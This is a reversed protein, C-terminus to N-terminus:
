DAARVLLKEPAAWRAPVRAALTTACCRDAPHQARGADARPRRDRVHRTRHRGAPARAGAGRDARATPRLLDAARAGASAPARRGSPFESGCRRSAMPATRATAAALALDDDECALRVPVFVDSPCVDHPQGSPISTRSKSSVSPSRTSISRRGPPSSSSIGKRAVHPRRSSSAEHSVRTTM